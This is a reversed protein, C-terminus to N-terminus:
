QGHLFSGILVFPDLNALSVVASLRSHVSEQWPHFSGILMFPGITLLLHFQQYARILGHMSM